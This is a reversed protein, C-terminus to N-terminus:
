EAAITEEEYKSPCKMVIKDAEFLKEKDLYKGIVVVKEAKEFDNPKPEHYRVLEVAKTSDELYFMFQDLNPNYSAKDREVWKGVIHVYDGSEKAVSFNTYISMSQAFNVALMVAFIAVM